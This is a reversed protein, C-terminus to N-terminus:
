AINLRNSYVRLMPQRFIPEGTSPSYWRRSNSCSSGMRKSLRVTSASMPPAATMEAVPGASMMPGGPGEGSPLIFVLNTGLGSFQDAVFRTVGDGLALLTIVAAVGIMIGLMTLAARLKNASLGNLAIRINEIFKM